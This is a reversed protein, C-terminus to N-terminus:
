ALRRCVSYGRQYWSMGSPRMGPLADAAPLRSLALMLFYAIQRAMGAPTKGPFGAPRGKHRAVGAGTRVRNGAAGLIRGREHCPQSSVRAQNCSHVAAREGSSKGGADNCIRNVLGLEHLREATFPEGTFAIEAALAPPIKRPLRILGGASAVLGRSAEPLAFRSIRSAVILDCALAMEFGGGYAPGEVAAILPKTPPQRVLGFWGRKATIPRSGDNAAKLDTGACFFSPGGTLIAVRLESNAEFADLQEELCRAAALDMANRVEPRNLTLVLINGRTEALVPKM